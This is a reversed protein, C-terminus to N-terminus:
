DEFFIVEIKFMRDGGMQFADLAAQFKETLMSGNSGEVRWLEAPPAFKYEFTETPKGNVIGHWRRDEDNLYAYNEYVLLKSM